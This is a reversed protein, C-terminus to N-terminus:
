EFLRAAAEMDQAIPFVQDFGIMEIISAIKPELNCLVLQGQRRRAERSANLLVKLGSSSIYSVEAMDVIIRTEGRNLISKFRDGLAPSSAADVRGRPTVTSFTPAAKEQESLSARKIMVLQNGTESDFSFRVEDMLKHMFYLGLGGVRREELGSDINPPPIAEPDFPRGHDRLTIICEDPELECTLHIDGPSDAYAHEIINTCAEDVALQIAFIDQESLNSQQTAQTIFDAIIELNQVDGFVSLSQRNHNMSM